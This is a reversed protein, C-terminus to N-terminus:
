ACGHLLGRTRIFTILILSLSYTASSPKRAALALWSAGESADDGMRGACAFIAELILPSISSRNHKWQQEFYPRSIVPVYPHIDTFFIKFLETCQADSPMLAPPIRVSGSSMFNAPLKPEPEEYAPTEALQRKQDAIYPALPTLM